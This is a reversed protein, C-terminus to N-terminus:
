FWRKKRFFWIMGLACALMLLWVLPYGFRWQLEPMRAFNMGYIGAIFTLPIFISAMVTLVQMVENMRFSISSMYLDILATATDRFSELTDVVQLCHDYLDQLYHQTSEHILPYDDKLLSGTMERLPWVAKRMFILQGKVQHIQRLTEQRPESLLDKELEELRDGLQELVHFYSDVICDLLAYALYDPGRQRIRSNPRALRERVGDFVDGPREQFSLVNHATLVVSIQEAELLHERSDYQFMKLIFLLYDGFDESKTRHHTNLIDELALPHLDFAKGFAEVEAVQHIGDLNIWSVSPSDKLALCEQLTLGTRRSLDDPQYDIASLVTESVKQEGVHQLTGPALGIPKPRSRFLSTVTTVPNRFLKM